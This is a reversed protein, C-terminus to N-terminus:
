KIGEPIVFRDRALPVNVEIKTVTAKIPAETGFTYTVSHAFKVGGTTGYDAFAYEPTFPKGSMTVEATAKLPLFTKADIFYTMAAGLPLAVRLKHVATTGVKDTGLYEPKNDFFAPFIRAIDVEFNKVEPAPACAARPKEGAPAAPQKTFCGRTGDFVLVYASETRMLNPRMIEQVVPIAREPYSTTVRLTKVASIKAMGGMADACRAVVQDATLQQASVGLGGIVLACASGIAILASIRLHRTTM